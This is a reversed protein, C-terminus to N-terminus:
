SKHNTANLYQEAWIDRIDRDRRHQDGRDWISLDDLLQAWDIGQIGGAWPIRGEIARAIEDLAWSLPSELNHLSACLITDFRTRFRNRSRYDPPDNPECAGLVAPLVPGNEFEPRVHPISSGFVGFLKAILWSPERRPASANKQRLPWWLGTFLDFGALTRDPPQGVLRRLHSREGPKLSELKLIFASSSTM